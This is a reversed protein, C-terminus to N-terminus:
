RCVLINVKMINGFIMLIMSITITLLKNLPCRNIMSSNVKAMSSIMSGNVKIPRITQSIIYLEMVRCKIIRGNDMMSDGMKIIFSVREMGLVMWNTGRMSVVWRLINLLMSLNCRWRIPIWLIQHRSPIKYQFVSKTKNQHGLVLNVPKTNFPNLLDLMNVLISLHIVILISATTLWQIPSCQYVARLLGELVILIQNLSLLNIYCEKPNNQSM